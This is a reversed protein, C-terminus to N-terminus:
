LGTCLAAAGLATCVALSVALLWSMPPPPQSVFSTPLNLDGHWTGITIGIILITIPSSLSPSSVRVCLCAPLRVCYHPRCVANRGICLM